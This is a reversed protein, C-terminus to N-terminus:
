AARGTNRLIPNVSGGSGVLMRLFSKAKDAYPGVVPVMSSYNWIAILGGGIVAARILDRSKIRGAKPVNVNILPKGM